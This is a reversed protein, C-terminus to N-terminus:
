RGATEMMFGFVRQVSEREGLAKAAQFEVAHEKHRELIADFGSCEWDHARLVMRPRGCDDTKVRGTEPSKMVEVHECEHDLVAAQEQPSLVEWRDGDLLIQFDALGAVRDRLSVVRVKALAPWKTASLLAPGVPEGSDKDRKAHAMIVSYTADAEHLDRHYLHILGRVKKQISEDAVTYTAM